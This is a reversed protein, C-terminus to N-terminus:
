RYYGKRIETLRAGEGHGPYVMPDCPLAFLKRLSGLLMGWNGGYLDTRGFGRAFLTDGTFMVSEDRSLLCVGGPTHGPTPIVTFDLGCASFTGEDLYGDADMPVFSHRTYAPMANMEANKLFEGDPKGIYVPAGYAEHLYEAGLIHDFHGHTLAIARPVASFETLADKIANVDDGPDIVLADPSDENRVIYCNTQYEGCVVAHIQM